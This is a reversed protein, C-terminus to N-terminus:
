VAGSPEVLAGMEGVAPLESDAYPGVQMWIVFGDALWWRWLREDGYVVVGKVVALPTWDEATKAKEVHAASVGFGWIYFSRGKGQAILASGTEGTIRYGAQEAMRQVQDAEPCATWPGPWDPPCEDSHAGLATQRLGLAKEASREQQSGCSAAMFGTTLLLALAFSRM